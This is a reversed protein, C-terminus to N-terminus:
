GWRRRGAVLRASQIGGGARGRSLGEMTALLRGSTAEWVKVAGYRSATALHQGDPSFAVARVAGLYDKLAALLRGSTAEWVRVTGDEGATAFHQGDPSFAGAVVSAQHGELTALIQVSTASWVQVTGDEGATALRGATRVSRWWGGERSARTWDPPVAWQRDGVAMGAGRGDRGATFWTRQGDQTRFAVAVVPGEHGKLVTLQADLTRLAQKLLFRM